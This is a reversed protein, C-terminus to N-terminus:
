DGNIYVATSGVADVVRCMSPGRDGTDGVRARIRLVIADTTSMGSSRRSSRRNWLTRASALRSRMTRRRASPGAVTVSSISCTPSDCGSTDHCRPLSRSTPSTATAGAPGRSRGCWRGRPTRTTRSAGPAPGRGRRRRRRPAPPRILPESTEGPSGPGRGRGSSASRRRGRCAPGTAWRGSRSRSGSRRRRRTAAPSCDHITAPRSTTNPPTNSRNSPASARAVPLTLLSPANM